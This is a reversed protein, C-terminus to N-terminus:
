CGFLEGFEGFERWREEKWNPKWLCFCVEEEVEDVEELKELGSGTL